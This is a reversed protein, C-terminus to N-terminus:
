PQRPGAVLDEDILPWHIGYGSPSLESRGREFGTARALWDPSEQWPIDVRGSETIM